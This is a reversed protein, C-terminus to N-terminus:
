SSLELTSTSVCYRGNPIRGIFHGYLTWGRAGASQLGFLACLMEPREESTGLWFKAKNGDSLFDAQLQRLERAFVRDLYRLLGASDFTRRWGLIANPNVWNRRGIVEVALLVRHDRSPLYGASPLEVEVLVADLPDSDDGIM